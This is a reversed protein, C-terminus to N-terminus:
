QHDIAGVGRAFRVGIAQLDVTPYHSRVVELAHTVATIIADRNFSKFNEWASNCRDIITYPHPPRGNPQPAVELDIYNLVPKVRAVVVDFKNRQTRAEQELM